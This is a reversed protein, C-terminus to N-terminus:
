CTIADTEAIINTSISELTKTGM